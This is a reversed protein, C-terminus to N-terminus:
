IAVSPNDSRKAARGPGTSAGGRLVGDDASYGVEHDLGYCIYLISTVLTVFGVIIIFIDAFKGNGSFGVLLCLTSVFFEFLSRGVRGALFGFSVLFRAPMNLEGMLLMAGFFSIYLSVAFNLPNAASGGLSTFLGILTLVGGAVLAVGVVVNVWHLIPTLGAGCDPARGKGM